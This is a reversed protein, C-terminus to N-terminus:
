SKYTNRKEAFENVVQENFHPTDANEELPGFLDDGDDEKMITGDLDM